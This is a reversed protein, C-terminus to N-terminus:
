PQRVSLDVPFPLSNICMRSFFSFFRCLIQSFTILIAKILVGFGASATTCRPATIHATMDVSRWGRLHLPMLNDPIRKLQPHQTYVALEQFTIKATTVESVCLSSSFPVFSSHTKVNLGGANIFYRYNKIPATSFVCLVLIVEEKRM